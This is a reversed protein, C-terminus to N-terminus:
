SFSRLVERVEALRRALESLERRLRRRLRVSSVRAILSQAEEEAQKLRLERDKIAAEIALEILQAERRYPEIRAELRKLQSEYEAKLLGYVQPKMDDKSAELLELLRRVKARDAILKSVEKSRFKDLPAWALDLTVHPEKAAPAKKAAPAEEAEPQEAEELEEEEELPEASIYRVVEALSPPPRPKPQPTEGLHTTKVPGIRVFGPSETFPGEVYAVGRDLHKIRSAISSSLGMFKSVVKIDATYEIRLIIKNEAQSLLTKSILQPRQTTFLLGIGRKRGRTALTNLWTLTLASHKGLTSRAGREPALERAEDVAILYGQGGEKLMSEALTSFAQAAQEPTYKSLDLIFSVGSLAAKAVRRASVKTIDVDGEPSIILADYADAITVHEGEPDVIGVPYGLDLLQEAIRRLAWSKGYGTKAVIATRGTLLEKVKLKFEGDDLRKGLVLESL